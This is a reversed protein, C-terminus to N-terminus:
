CFTLLFIGFFYQGMKLTYESGDTLSTTPCRVHNLCLYKTFSLIFTSPMQFGFTTELITMLSSVRYLLRM